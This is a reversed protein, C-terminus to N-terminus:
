LFDTSRKFDGKRAGGHKLGYLRKLEQGCVYRTNFDVDKRALNDVLVWIKQETDDIGNFVIVPVEKMGIELAVRCRENGRCEPCKPYKEQKQM